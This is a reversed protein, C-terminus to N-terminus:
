TFHRGHEKGSPSFGLSSWGTIEKEEDHFSATRGCLHPLWSSGRVLVVARGQFVDGPLPVGALDLITPLIDMVTAFSSTIAGSGSFGPGLPPYRVICPCRIGGETIWTKSGRSPAMSACAWAPGYWAYLDPMGFNELNNNYYRDITANISTAEGMVPLAELVAGQARNDSMFLIFMDDLTGTEELHDLVRRINTDIMEVMAAFEEMKRASHSCEEPSM